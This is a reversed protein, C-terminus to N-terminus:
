VKIERRLFYNLTTRIAVIAALMGIGQWSPTLVTGLIDAAIFIELGLILNVGLGQRIHVVNEVMKKQDVEFLVRLLYNFVARAVGYVIVGTGITHIVVIILRFVSYLETM